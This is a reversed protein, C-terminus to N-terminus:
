FVIDNIIIEEIENGNLKETKTKLYFKEVKKDDNKIKQEDSILKRLCWLTM